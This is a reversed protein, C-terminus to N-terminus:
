LEEAIQELLICASATGAEGAARLHEVTYEVAARCVRGRASDNGVYELARTLLRNRAIGLESGPDPLVEPEVMEQARHGAIVDALDGEAADHLKGAIVTALDPFSEATRAAHEAVSTAPTVGVWARAHRLGQAYMRHDFRQAKAVLREQGLPLLRTARGREGDDVARTSEALTEPARAAAEIWNCILEVHRAPEIGLAPAALRVFDWLTPAPQPPPPETNRGIITMPRDRHAYRYNGSDLRVELDGDSYRHAVVGAVDREVHVGEVTFRVRDGVAPPRSGAYIEGFNRAKAAQRMESGSPAALKRIEDLVLAWTIPSDGCAFDTRWGLARAADDLMETSTLDPGAAVIDNNLNVAPRPLPPPDTGTVIKKLGERAAASASADDTQFTIAPPPIEAPVPPTRVTAATILADVVNQGLARDLETDSLYTYLVSRVQARAQEHDPRLAERERYGDREGRIEQATFMLVNDPEGEVGLASGVERRLDALVDLAVELPGDYSHPATDNALVQGPEIPAVVADIVDDLADDLASSVLCDPGLDNELDDLADRLRNRLLPRDKACTPLRRASEVDTWNWNVRANPWKKSGAEIYWRRIESSDTGVAALSETAAGKMKLAYLGPELAAEEENTM